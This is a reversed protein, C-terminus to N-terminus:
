TRGEMIMGLRALALTFNMNAQSKGEEEDLLKIAKPLVDRFRELGSTLDKLVSQDNGLLAKSFVTSLISYFYNYCKNGRLNEGAQHMLVYTAKGNEKVLAHLYDLAAEFASTFEKSAIINIKEEEDYVFSSVLYFEKLDEEGRYDNLLKDLDPSKVEIPQARSLITPLVKDRNDTTLFAVTNGSPEELTKLLANIAEETINEVHNIVYASIHNKELATMSFFDDLADIDTKRILKDKGDILIFDPHIGEAFRKCSPCNGCSLIDQECELSKVLFLASELLPSSPEGYLLYAHSLRKYKRANIFLKALTPQELQFREKDYAM